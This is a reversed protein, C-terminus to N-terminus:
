ISCIWALLATLTVLSIVTIMVIGATARQVYVGNQQAAAFILAGAPLAALAANSFAWFPEFQQARCTCIVDVGEHVPKCQRLQERKTDVVRRDGKSQKQHALPDGCSAGLYTPDGEEPEEELRCQDPPQRKINNFHFREPSEARLM